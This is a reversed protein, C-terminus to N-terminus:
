KAYPDLLVDDINWPSSSPSASFQLQATVTMGEALASGLALSPTLTWSTYDGGNLTEVPLSGSDGAADTWLVQVDLTSDSGGDANHAFFRFSPFTSDLCFPPSTASGGPDISLSHASSINLVNWPESAKVVAAGSLSWNTKRGNFAGGPLPSYLATDGFRALV